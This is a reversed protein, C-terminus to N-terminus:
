RSANNMISLKYSVSTRYNYVSDNPNIMLTDFNVLHEGPTLPKLIAFYGDARAKFTGSPVEWINGPVFTLNFFDTLIRNKSYDVENTAKFLIVYQADISLRINGGNNGEQSCKTVEADTKVIGYDCEGTLLPIFIAKDSPIACAITSVTSGEGVPADLFWIPGNQDIGCKEGTTDYRPHEIKAISATWNWYRALWDEMSVGFPKDDMSFLPSIIDIAKATPELSLYMLNIALFTLILNVAFKCAIKRIGNALNM